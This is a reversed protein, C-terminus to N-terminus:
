KLDVQLTVSYAGAPIPEDARPAPDLRVLTVTLAGAQGQQSFRRNTHLQLDVAPESESELRLHVIADGEWFCTVGTPCRSDNPVAVFTIRTRTGRVPASAGVRLEIAEADAAYLTTPGAPGREDIPAPSSACAMCSLLMLIVSVM